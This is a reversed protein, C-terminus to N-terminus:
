ATPRKVKLVNGNVSIIEVLTDKPLAQATESVDIEAQMLTGSWRVTGQAGKQLGAQVIVAKDGVMNQYINQSPRLRWSKLKKWLIAAFLSAFIFFVAFQIIQEQVGILGAEVAIGVLIASLGAFLFGIGPLGFAELALLIAGAILWLVSPTFLQPDILM